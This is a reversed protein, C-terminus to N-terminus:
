GDILFDNNVSVFFLVVMREAVEDGGGGGCGNYGSRHIIINIM